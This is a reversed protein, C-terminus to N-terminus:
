GDDFLRRQADCCLSNSLTREPDVDAAGIM